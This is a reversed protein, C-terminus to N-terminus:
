PAFSISDLTQQAAKLQAEVPLSTTLIVLCPYIYRSNSLILGNTYFIHRESNPSPPVINLRTLEPIQTNKWDPRKLIRRTTARLLKHCDGEPQLNAWADVKLLHLRLPHDQRMRFM